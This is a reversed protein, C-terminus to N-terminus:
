FIRMVQLLFGIGQGRCLCDSAGVKGLGWGQGMAVVLRKTKTYKGTRSMQHLHFHVTHPIKHSAEKVSLNM